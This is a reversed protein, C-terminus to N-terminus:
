GGWKFGVKKLNEPLPPPNPPTLFHVGKKKPRFDRIKQNKEIKLRFLTEPDRDIPNTHPPTPRASICNICKKAMKAIHATKAVEPVGHYM